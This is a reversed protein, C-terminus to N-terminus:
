VRRGYDAPLSASDPRDSDRRYRTQLVGTYPDEEGVRCHYQLSGQYLFVFRRRLPNRFIMYFEIEWISHLSHDGIVEIAPFDGEFAHSIVTAMVSSIVIPSFQAVAYDMLIIEVAFLAGAIPANFAAAIGAAAGCGVLTKMRKSSIQFFQGVLSGLSSGIQVIPGERGVSGGTGITITSVLTKLFAVRPRIQGGKLLVAQM